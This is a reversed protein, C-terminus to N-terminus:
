WVFGLGLMKNRFDEILIPLRALLQKEDQLQEITADPWIACSRAVELNPEKALPNFYEVFKGNVGYKMKMEAAEDENVIKILKGELYFYYKGQLKSIKKAHYMTNEIYYMPGDTSCLHYPILHRFEPFTEAIDEHLCGFALFRKRKTTLYGTISFTNHKNGCEDDFRLTVMLINNDKTVRNFVKEQRLSLLSKM